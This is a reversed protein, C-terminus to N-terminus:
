RYRGPSLIDDPDLNKRLRDHFQWSDSQMETLKSMTDVGVRYPFWGKARGTDLLEAYCAQAAAVAEPRDREFVLPVTSDFLKDSLTTFTILPELGHKPAVEYVMRTYARLDTPRMPVLPAYWMLGCGDEGPNKLLGKQPQRNRWYALPLATENPIGYVLELGKALTGTLGQLGQGLKGPIYTSITNLRKAKEPTFFMMRTAIPGLAAKIEAQAAAVMRQTGYLTAFGTWPFINYQKGLRAVVDAPM